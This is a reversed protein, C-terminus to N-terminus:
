ATEVADAAARPAEPTSGRADVTEGLRTIFVADVKQTVAQRPPSCIAMQLVSGRLFGTMFTQAM